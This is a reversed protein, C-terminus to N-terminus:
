QLIGILLFSSCGFYWCSSVFVLRAAAAAAAVEFGAELDIQNYNKASFRNQKGKTVEIGYKDKQIHVTNYESRWSDLFEKTMRIDCLVVEIESM